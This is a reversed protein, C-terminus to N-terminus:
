LRGRPLAGTRICWSRTSPPFTGDQSDNRYRSCFPGQRLYRADHILMLAALSNAFVAVAVLSAERIDRLAHFGLLGTRIGRVKSERPGETLSIDATSVTELPVEGPSHISFRSPILISIPARPIARDRISCGRLVRPVESHLNIRNDTCSDDTLRSRSDASDGFILRVIPPFEGLGVLTIETAKKTLSIIVGDRCRLTPRLVFLKRM